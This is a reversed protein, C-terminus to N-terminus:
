DDGDGEQKATGAGTPVPTKPVLLPAHVPEDHLAAGLALLIGATGTALDMSLRMLVGGPFATGGGYPLTHWSLNRVQAALLPDRHRRAAIRGALYLVMGARGSFLGPLAYLPSTAAVPITEAAAQVFEPDDDPRAALYADLALGIGVSGVDLYPLTRWGEDVHMAGKDRVVCRRLDRRLAEAACDLFRTDGATDFARLLLMAQGAHGRMLGAYFGESGSVLPADDPAALREAVIEAARLGAEALGSDGTRSALHLSISDSGQCVM